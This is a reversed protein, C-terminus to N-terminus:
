SSSTQSSASTDGALRRVFQLATSLSLKRLLGRRFLESRSYQFTGDTPLRNGHAALYNQFQVSEHRWPHASNIRSDLRETVTRRFKFHHTAGLLSSTVNGEPCNHNGGDQLATKETCYFLPYKRISAQSGMKQYLDVSCLPFTAFPDPIVEPTELSGDSTLRQLMPAFLANKGLVQLARITARINHYPFEVFEDSDALVIWHGGMRGLLANLRRKKETSDFETEYSDEIVIPYSDKLSHLKRNKEKPGHVILHFSSVGLNRHHNFWAELLDGDGSVHSVLRLEKM